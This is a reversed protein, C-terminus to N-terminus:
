RAAKLTNSRGYLAAVLFLSSFLLALSAPMYGSCGPSILSCAAVAASLICNALFVEHWLRHHPRIFMGIITLLWVIFVIRIEMEARNAMHLPLLRNALFFSLFGALCGGTIGTNLRGMFISTASPATRLKKAMWLHLGSAIVFALMLGSVFYGLRIWVPAFHAMHLGYLSNYLVVAPRTEIRDALIKGTIGDFSLTHHHVAVEPGDTSDITVVANQDFPNAITMLAGSYDGLRAQAEQMIEHIKLPGAKTGTAPREIFGPTFDNFLRSMDQGYVSQLSWPFIMIALTLAGTFSIFFHFPLAAVGALNHADLWSRQGKHFRFTFADRFFRRHVIVGTLLSVLMLLALLAALIRGWPYPMQLEFHLRFFFEGGMTDRVHDPTGTVPDFIHRVFHGNDDQWDAKTFPARPGPLTLFWRPSKSAHISLWHIAAEASTSPDPHEMSLEPLAWTDIEPRWVSLSGSIAIVFLLWGALLGVWGHLWATIIRIGKKM